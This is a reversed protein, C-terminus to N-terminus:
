YEGKRYYGHPETETWVLIELIRVPTLAYGAQALQTQLGIVDRRVDRLDERFDKLVETAIAAAQKKDQTMEVLSSRGSAVLYHNIVVTDLMPIFNRRKRHLVKVARPILVGPVQVAVHLLDQFAQLRADFTLLDADVPIAALLPDCAAALGRHIRRVQVAKDIFSNMAVTALVDVPLIRDPEPDAVGDYYDYEERCFAQLRAETDIIRLGSKLALVDATGVSDSGSARVSNRTRPHAVSPRESEGQVVRQRTLEGPKCSKCHRLRGGTAALAWSDLDDVTPSCAKIYGVTTWNKFKPPNIWACTARHLMLYNAVPKEHCNVVFGDRHSALWALYGTDNRVFIQVGSTSTV